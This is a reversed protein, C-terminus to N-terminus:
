LTLYTCFYTLRYVVRHCRINYQQIAGVVSYTYKLIIVILISTFCWWQKWQYRVLEQVSLFVFVYTLCLIICNVVFEVGHCVTLM